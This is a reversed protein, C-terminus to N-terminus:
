EWMVVILREHGRAMSAPLDSSRCPAPPFFVCESGYVEIHQLHRKELKKIMEEIAKM